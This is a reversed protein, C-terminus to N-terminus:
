GPTGASVGRSWAEFEARLSGGFEPIFGINGSPRRSERGLFGQAIWRGPFALPQGGDPAISEAKTLPSGQRGKEVVSCNRSWSLKPLAFNAWASM